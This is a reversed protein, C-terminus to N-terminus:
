RRPRSRPRRRRRPADDAQEVAQRDVAPGAVVRSKPPAAASVSSPPERCRGRRRCGPCRCPRARCRPLSANWHSGPSPLSVTAPSAPVSASFKLPELMPSCSASTAFPACVRKVRLTAFMTMSRAATSCTLAREAARVRQGDAVEGPGAHAAHVRVEAPEVAVAVGRGVAHDDIAGFPRVLGDEAGVAVRADGVAERDVHARRAHLGGGSVTM